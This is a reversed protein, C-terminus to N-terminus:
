IIRLGVSHGLQLAAL